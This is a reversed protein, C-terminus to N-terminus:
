RLTSVSTRLSWFSSIFTECRINDPISNKNVNRMENERQEERIAIETLNLKKGCFQALLPTKKVRKRLASSPTGVEPGRNTL